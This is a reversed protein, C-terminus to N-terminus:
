FKLEKTSGLPRCEEIKRLAEDGGPIVAGAKKEQKLDNACKVKAVGGGWGM